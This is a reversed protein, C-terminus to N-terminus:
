FKGTYTAKYKASDLMPKVKTNYTNRSHRAGAFPNAIVLIHRSPRNEAIIKSLFHFWREVQNPENNQFIILIEQLINDQMTQYSHLQFGRLSDTQNSSSSPPAAGTSTLTNATSVTTGAINENVNLSWGWYGNIPTIAFVNELNVSNANKRRSAESQYDNTVTSWSLVDNELIVEVTTNNITFFAQQYSRNLEGITDPNQNPITPSHEDSLDQQNPREDDDDDFAVKM